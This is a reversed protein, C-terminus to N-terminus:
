GMWVKRYYTVVESAPNTKLTSLEHTKQNTVVNPHTQKLRWSSGHLLHRAQHWGSVTHLDPIRNGHRGQLLKVGVAAAMGYSLGAPAGVTDQHITAASIQITSCPYDLVEHPSFPTETKEYINIWIKNM